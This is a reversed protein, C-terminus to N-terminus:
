RLLQLKKGWTEVWLNSSERPATPACLTVLQTFLWYRLTSLDKRSMDLVHTRVLHELMIKIMWQWVDGVCWQCWVPVPDFCAVWLESCACVCVCVNILLDASTSDQKNKGLMYRLRFCYCHVLPSKVNDNMWSCLYACIVM